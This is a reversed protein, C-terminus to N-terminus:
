YFTDLATSLNNEFIVLGLFTQFKTRYLWDFTLHFHILLRHCGSVHKSNTSSSVAM